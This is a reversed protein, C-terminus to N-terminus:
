ITQKTCWCFPQFLNLTKRSINHFIQFVSSYCSVSKPNFCATLNGWRLSVRDGLVVQFKFRGGLFYILGNWNPGVSGVFVCFWERRVGFSVLFRNRRNVWNKGGDWRWHCRTQSWQHSGKPAVDEKLFLLIPIRPTTKCGTIYTSFDM